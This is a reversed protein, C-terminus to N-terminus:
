RRRGARGTNVHAVLARSDSRWAWYYPSGRDLARYGGEAGAPVLGLELGTEGDVVSLLSVMKSDPSWYLYFPRLRSGSLVRTRRRGDRSATFLSADVVQQERNVTVRTFAVRTGDPSWTPAAYVVQGDSGPGADSTLAKAAGGKQNLLHVNGDAGIFALLGVPREFFRLLPSQKMQAGRVQCSALTFGSLVLASLLAARCSWRLLM